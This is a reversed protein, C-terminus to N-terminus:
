HKSRNQVEMVFENKDADAHLGFGNVITGKHETKLCRIGYVISQNDPDSDAEVRITKDIEVDEPSYVKKDAWLKGDHVVFNKTYGESKLDAIVKTMKNASQKIDETTKM